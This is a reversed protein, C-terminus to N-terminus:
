QSSGSALFSSYSSTRALGRNPPGRLGCDDGIEMRSLSPLSLKLELQEPSESTYVMSSSLRGVLRTPCPPHWMCHPFEDVRMKHYDRCIHYGLSSFFLIVLFMGHTDPAGSGTIAPLSSGM